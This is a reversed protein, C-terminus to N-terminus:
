KSATALWRKVSKMFAVISLRWSIQSKISCAFDLSPISAAVHQWTQSTYKRADDFCVDPSYFFVSDEHTELLSLVKTGLIARLLINADLVLRRGSAVETEEFAM